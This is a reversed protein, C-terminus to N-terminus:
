KKNAGKKAEDWKSKFEYIAYKNLKNRWKIDWCWQCVLFYYFITLVHVNKWKCKM